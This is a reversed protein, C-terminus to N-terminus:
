ELLSKWTKRRERLEFQREVWRMADDAEAFFARNHYSFPWPAKSMHRLEARWKAGNPFWSVRGWLSVFGSETTLWGPRGRDKVPPRKWTRQFPKRKM